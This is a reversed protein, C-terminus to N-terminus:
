YLSLRQNSVINKKHVIAEKEMGEKPKEKIHIQIRNTKSIIMKMTLSDLCPMQQNIKSLCKNKFQKSIKMSRM